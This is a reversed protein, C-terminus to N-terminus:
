SLIDQPGHMSALRLFTIISFVSFATEENLVRLGEKLGAIEAERKAKRSAHAEAKTVCM